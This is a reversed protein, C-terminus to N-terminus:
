SADLIFEKKEAQRLIFAFDELVENATKHSWNNTAANNAAVTSSFLGNKGFIKVIRRREKRRQHSNM